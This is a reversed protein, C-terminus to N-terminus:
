DNIMDEKLGNVFKNDFDGIIMDLRCHPLPKPISPFNSFDHGRLYEIIKEIVPTNYDLSVNSNKGPELKYLILITIVLKRVRKYSNPM